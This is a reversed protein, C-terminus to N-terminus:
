GESAIAPRGAARGADRRRAPLSRGSVRLALLVAAPASAAVAPAIFWVQGADTGELFRHALGLAWALLAFRHVLRFRETGIRRRLYFSLGTAFTMWGAVIGLTTWAREYGSVLPVTVEWVSPHLYSD